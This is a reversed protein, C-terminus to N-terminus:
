VRGLFHQADLCIQCGTDWIAAELMLTCAFCCGPLRCVQKNLAALRRQHEEALAAREAALAAAHKAAAEERAADLGEQRLTALRQELQAACRADCELRYAAMREELSAAAAAELAGSKRRYEEEIAALRTSLLQSSAPGTAALADDCSSNVGWGEAVGDEGAQCAAAQTSVHGGLVGLAAVIREVLSSAAGSAPNDVGPAGEVAGAGEAAQPAAGLQTSPECTLLAHVKSEPLVGLLRLLDAHGLRPLGGSGTEALFVSMTYTHRQALLFESVLCNLVHQQLSPSPQPAPLWPPTCISGTSASNGPRKLEAYLRARLHAQLLWLCANGMVSLNAPSSPLCTHRSFLTSATCFLGATNPM